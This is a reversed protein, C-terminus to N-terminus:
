GGFTMKKYSAGLGSSGLPKPTAVLQKSSDYFKMSPAKAPAKKPGFGGRRTRRRRRGGEMEGGEMEGGRYRRRRRGGEMEGGEMEGGRYRRSRRRGGEMEGGYYEGGRHRRTRRRGGVYDSM